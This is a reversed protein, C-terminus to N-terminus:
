PSLGMNFFSGGEMRSARNSVFTRPALAVAANQFRGPRWGHLEQLHQFRNRAAHLRSGCKSFSQGEMRSAVKCM